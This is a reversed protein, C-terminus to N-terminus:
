NFDADRKMFCLSARSLQSKREVDGTSWGAEQLETCQIGQLETVIMSNGMEPHKSVSNGLVLISGGRGIQKDEPM